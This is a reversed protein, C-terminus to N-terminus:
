RAAVAVAAAAMMAGSSRNLMQNARPSQFWIRASAAALVYTGLIAPLMVAIVAAIELYGLLSLTELNVVTPLLAVFFIMPKPNGLTLSLSGLFSALPRQAINPAEVPDLRRAPASWLKYALFLLYAAGAYKVAAFAWPATQAIASLGLAAGLFWILDGVVFGAIFAAAGRPGHALGRAIVAAVGPGPTAVALSYIACFTVLGYWSMRHERSQQEL